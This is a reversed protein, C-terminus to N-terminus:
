QRGHDLVVVRLKRGSEEEMIAKFHDIVIEDFVTKPKTVTIEEPLGYKETTEEFVQTLAEIRVAFACAIPNAPDPDKLAALIAQRDNRDFDTTM